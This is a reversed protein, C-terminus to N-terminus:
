RSKLSLSNPCSFRRFHGGKGAKRLKMYRMNRRDFDAQKGIKYIKNIRDLFEREGIGM